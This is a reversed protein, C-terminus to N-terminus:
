RGEPETFLVVLRCGKVSKVNHEKGKAFKRTSFRRVKVGDVTCQGELVWIQEVADHDHIGFQSDPKMEVDWLSLDDNNLELHYCNIKDNIVLADSTSRAFPVAKLSAYSVRGGNTLGEKVDRIMTILEQAEPETLGPKSRGKWLKWFKNM